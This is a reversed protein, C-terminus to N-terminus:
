NQRVKQLAQSLTELTYPKGLFDVGGAEVAQRKVRDSSHGSSLIVKVQPNIDRLKAYTELGSMDPMIMDLLVCIVKRPQKSYMECAHKGSEACLVKYGLRTLGKELFDLVRPEDDVVLVTGRGPMLQKSPAKLSLPREIFVAPLYLAFETGGSPVSTVSIAGRADRVIREVMTLGLGTNQGPSKTTFLPEYIHELVQPPMGVGTDRVAIRVYSGAPCSPPRRPDDASLTETTAEVTLIGGTPMADRANLCLNLIAQEFRNRFGEVCPMNAEARHEVQIKRDFTRTIIKMVAGVIERVEVPQAEAEDNRSVELLERALMAAGRASEEIIKLPEQIPDAATLRMQALSAFGMIVELANNFDHAVGGALMGLTHIKQSQILENKVSDRAEEAQKAASNDAVLILHSTPQGNADRVATVSTACWIVEGSNRVYRNLVTAPHRKSENAQQEAEHFKERDERAVFDAIRKGTLDTPAHGLLEALAPSVRQIKGDLGALAVGVHEQAFMSEAISNEELPAREFGIRELALAALRAFRDILARCGEDITSNGYTHVSLVGYLRSNLILPVVYLSKIKVNESLGQVESADSLYVPKRTKAAQVLPSQCDNSFPQISASIVPKAQAVCRFAQGASATSYVAAHAFWMKATLLLLIKQLAASPSEAEAMAAIGWTFIDRLDDHGSPTNHDAAFPLTAKALPELRPKRQKHPGNRRIEKMM